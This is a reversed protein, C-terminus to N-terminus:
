LKRIDPRRPYLVLGSETEDLWFTEGQRFKRREMYDRPLRIECGDGLPVKPM